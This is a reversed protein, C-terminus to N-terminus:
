EGKSDNMWKGRELHRISLVSALGEELSVRPGWGTLSKLLSNDLVLIPVKEEQSDTSPLIEPKPFGQREAVLALTNAMEGVSYGRGTSINVIRSGVTTNLLALRLIAEIVDDVHIFDRISRLNRLEIPRGRNVQDVAWGIATEPNISAGYLNALRMIVASFGYSNAYGQVAVEGALKSAAYISLPQTPHNESVSPELPLGYVHSTSMYIVQRVNHLRCAELVRGTGLSNVEFFHLPEDYSRDVHTLAALHLVATCGRIAQQLESDVLISGAVCTVAAAESKEMNEIAAPQDFVVIRRAGHALLQRILCRGLAGAGGTIFFKQQSFWEKMFHNIWTM